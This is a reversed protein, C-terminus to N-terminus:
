CEGMQYTSASVGWQFADPFSGYYFKGVYDPATGRGGKGPYGPLFGNEEIMQLRFIRRLSGMAQSLLWTVM